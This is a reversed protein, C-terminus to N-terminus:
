GLLEKLDNAYKILLFDVNRTTLIAKEWYERDTIRGKEVLYDLADIMGEIKDMVVAGKQNKIFLYKAVDIHDKSSYPAKRMELHLHIGTSNGTTGEIGILDGEKITQGVKVSTSELHCYLTRYNDPQKISVYNGYGYRDFAVVSVVGGAIARVQRDGSASIIDLGTHIKGNRNVGYESTIKPNKLPLM